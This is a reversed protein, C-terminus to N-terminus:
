SAAKFRSGSRSANFSKSVSNLAHPEDLKEPKWAGESIVKRHRVIMFSHFTNVSKDAAEVFELIAESSIDQAEPTSRPLADSVANARLTLAFLLAIFLSPPCRVAM